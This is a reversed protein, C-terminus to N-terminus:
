VYYGERIDSFDGRGFIHGINRMHDYLESAQTGQEGLKGSRYHEWGKNSVRIETEPYAPHKFIDNGLTVADGLRVDNGLIVGYDLKVDNGLKM